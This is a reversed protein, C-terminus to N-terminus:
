FRRPRSTECLRGCEDRPPPEEGGEYVDHSDMAFSVQCELEATESAAAQEAEEGALMKERGAENLLNQNFEIM